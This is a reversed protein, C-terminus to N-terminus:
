LHKRPRGFRDFGAYEDSTRTGDHKVQYDLQVDPPALDVTAVMGLGIYTHNAYDV